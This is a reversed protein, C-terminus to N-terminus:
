AGKEEKAGDTWIPKLLKAARNRYTADSCWIAVEIAFIMLEGHRDLLRVVEDADRETTTGSAIKDLLKGVEMTM